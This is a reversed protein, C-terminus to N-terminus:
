TRSTVIPLRWSFNWSTSARNSRVGLIIRGALPPFMMVVKHLLIPLVIGVVLGAPLLWYAHQVDFAELLRRSGSTGFIHYLYITFSFTGIYQFLRSKLNAYYLFVCLSVGFSLSQVDRRESLFRGNELYFDVSWIASATLIAASLFLVSRQYRDLWRAARQVLVGALFFVSLYIAQNASFLNANEALKLDSLYLLLLPLVLWLTRRNGMWSDILAFIAMVLFIAQLYWFHAYPFMLPRWFDVLSVSFSSKFLISFLAFAAIAISGPVIIRHAKKSLFTLFGDGAVPRLAYVFGGIFAFMPMRADILFDAFLRLAHPYDLQLGVEANNGVVHYSVLLVCALGRMANLTPQHDAAQLNTEM